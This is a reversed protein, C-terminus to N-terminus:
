FVLIVSYLVSGFLVFVSILFVLFLVTSYKM